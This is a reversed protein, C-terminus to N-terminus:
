LDRVDVHAVNGILQLNGANFVRLSEHGLDLRAAGVLEGRGSVELDGEVAGVKTVKFVVHPLIVEM